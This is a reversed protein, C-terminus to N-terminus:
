HIEYTKLLIQQNHSLHTMQFNKYDQIVFINSYIWSSIVQNQQPKNQQPEIM